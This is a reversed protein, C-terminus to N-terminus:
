KYDEAKPKVKETVTITTRDAAVSWSGSLDHSTSLLPKGQAKLYKAKWKTASENKPFLVPKGNEDTLPKGNAGMVTQEVDEIRGKGYPSTPMREFPNNKFVAERFQGEWHVSYTGEECAADTGIFLGLIKKADVSHDDTFKVDDADLRFYDLGTIHLKYSAKDKAPKVVAFEVTLEFTQVYDQDKKFGSMGYVYHGFGPRELPNV